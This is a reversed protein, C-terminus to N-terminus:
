REEHNAKWSSGYRQQQQQQQKIVTVTDPYKFKNRIEKSVNIRCNGDEHITRYMREAEWKKTLKANSGMKNTQTWTETGCTVVPM